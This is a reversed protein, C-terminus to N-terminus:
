KAVIGLLFRSLMLAAFVLALGLCAWIFINKGKEVSKSNGMSTLWIFGGYFFMILAVAGIVGLVAKLVSNVLGAITEPYIPNPVSGNQAWVWLPFIVAGLIIFLASFRLKKM